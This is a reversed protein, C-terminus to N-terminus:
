LAKRMAARLEDLLGQAGDDNGLEGFWNVAAAVARILDPVAAIAKVNRFTVNDDYEEDGTKPVTAVTDRNDTAEDYVTWSECDDDENNKSGGHASTQFSM